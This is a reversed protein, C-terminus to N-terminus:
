NIEDSKKGASSCHHWPQTASPIWLRGVEKTVWCQQMNGHAGLSVRDWYKCAYVCTSVCLPVPLVSSVLDSSTHPGDPLPCTERLLSPFSTTPSQATLSPPAILCPASVSLSLHVPWCVCVLQRRETYHVPLHSHGDFIMCCMCDVSALLVTYGSFHSTHKNTYTHKSVTLTTTGRNSPPNYTPALGPSLLKSRRTARSAWSRRWRWRAAPSVRRVYKWPPGQLLHHSYVTLGWTIRFVTMLLRM